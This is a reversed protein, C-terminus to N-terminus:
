MVSEHCHTCVKTRAVSVFWAIKRSIKLTKMQQPTAKVRVAVLPVPLARLWQGLKSWNADVLHDSNPDFTVVRHENEGTFDQGRVYSKCEELRRDAV